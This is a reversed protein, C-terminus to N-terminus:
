PLSVSLIYNMFELVDKRRRFRSSYAQRGGSRINLAEQLIKHYKEPVKELAWRGAETKSVIGGENFSYYQRATGLVGWEIREPSLLLISDYSFLRSSKRIWKKWYTNMNNKMEAILDDWSVSFGLENAPFGRITVASNKLQYWTVLNLEFHGRDHVKGEYFFTVPKIKGKPLGLQDPTVYFGNLEPKKYKLQILSHILQLKDIQEYSLGTEVIAIFDIDSREVHFDDTAASGYIYFGNM